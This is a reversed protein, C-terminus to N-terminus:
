QTMKTRTDSGTQRWVERALKAEVSLDEFRKLKNPVSPTPHPHCLAQFIVGTFAWAASACSASPSCPHKIPPECMFHRPRLRRVTLTPRKREDRKEVCERWAEIAIREDCDPASTWQGCPAWRVNRVLEVFELWILACSM